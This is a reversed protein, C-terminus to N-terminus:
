HGRGSLTHASACIQARPYIAANAETNGERLASLLLTGQKSFFLRKNVDSFLTLTYFQSLPTVPLWFCGHM